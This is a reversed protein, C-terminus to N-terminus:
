SEKMPTATRTVVCEVPGRSGVIVITQRVITVGNCVLTYRNGLFNTNYRRSDGCTPCVFRYSWSKTHFHASSNIRTCEVDDHSRKRYGPALEQSQRTTCM